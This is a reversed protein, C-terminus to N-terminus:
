KLEQLKPVIGEKLYNEYNFWGTKHCNGRDDELIVFRLQPDEYAAVITTFYVPINTHEKNNLFDQKSMSDASTVTFGIGDIRNLISM